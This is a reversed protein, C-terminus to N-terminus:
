ANEGKLPAEKSSLPDSGIASSASLAPLRVTFTSGSGETSWMTVSGGHGHAVHKVIALGLGTGGTARSRAPDARYFREFVRDQEDAAIGIGEDAVSVEVWGDRTRLGVVVTTGPLSYAVANELLNSVCTVLQRENGRVPHNEGAGVVVVRISQAETAPRIRDVAESVVDNLILDAPEPVPDAGELRSLDILDQVLRTLRGAEKTIRGTFRRVAEPEDSAGAIAEALLAMAGVPTKLEHSVNAVFDKRVAEVRRAETLDDLVLAVAGTEGVRSARVRVPIGDNGAPLYRYGAAPAPLALEVEASAPGASGRAVELVLRQLAPVRALVGGPVAGLERAADNAFLVAGDAALVVAAVPLTALVADALVAPLGSPEPEPHVPAVPAGRDPIGNRRSRRSSGAADDPRRWALATM